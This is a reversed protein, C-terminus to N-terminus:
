DLHDLCKHCFLEGVLRPEGACTWDEARTGTQGRFISVFCEPGGDDDSDDSDAAPHEKSALWEGHDYKIGNAGPDYGTLSHGLVRQVVLLMVCLPLPQRCGQARVITGLVHSVIFCDHRVRTSCVKGRPGGIADNLLGYVAHRQADAGLGAQVQQFDELLDLMTPYPNDQIFGLVTIPLVFM